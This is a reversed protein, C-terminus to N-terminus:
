FIIIPLYSHDGCHELFDHSVNTFSRSKKLTWSPKHHTSVQGLWKTLLKVAILWKLSYARFSPELPKLSCLVRLEPYYSGGTLVTLNWILPQTGSSDIKKLYKRQRTNNWAHTTVPNIGFSYVEAMPFSFM